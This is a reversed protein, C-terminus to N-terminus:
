TNNNLYKFLKPRCKAWADLQRASGMPCVSDFAKYAIDVFDQRISRRTRSDTEACSEILTQFKKECLQWFLFVAINAQKIGDAKQNKFYDKVSKLLDNSLKDLQEMETKLREFWLKGLWECQLMIKSEVFDDTGSVFQKGSNNSVKLGGSWIGIVQCNERARTLGMRIQACNWPSNTKSIFSLLSTLWRWPRKMPNVWITKPEKKSSDVAITPDIGGEKHTKHSIGESYHLGNGSLLCFSSLPVLRGMLSNKHVKAIPCCEGNPMKEWVPSGIGKPYGLKGVWEETLLNLWLTTLLHESTLFSHLYGLYGLHIGPKGTPKKSYGESLSITNDTKGGLGFGMLSVILLAKDADTLPKKIQSQTLLTTNGSAIEPFVTGFTKEKARKIAPMQLFPQEGYLWFSGHWEQLYHICKKAMGEPKLSCWDQDNKPTFTAQAIALLLKMLSIKQIPNGDIERYDSVSFLQKLSIQESGVIPIWPEDILNFRNVVSM